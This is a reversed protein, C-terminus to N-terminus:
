QQGAAGRQEHFLEQRIFPSIIEQESVGHVGDANTNVGSRNFDTTGEPTLGSPDSFRMPFNLAYTYRNWLQPNTLAQYVYHPRRQCVKGM